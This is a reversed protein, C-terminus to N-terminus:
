RRRAWSQSRCPRPGRRRSRQRRASGGSSGPRRAAVLARGRRPRAPALGRRHAREALLEGLASLKESQHLAERQRNLESEVEKRETLDATNSVIVQEGQFDIIKSNGVHTGTPLPGGEIGGANCSIFYVM